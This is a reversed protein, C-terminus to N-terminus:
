HAHASGHVQGKLWDYTVSAKGCVDWEFSHTVFSGWLVDAPLSLLAQEGLCDWLDNRRFSTAM